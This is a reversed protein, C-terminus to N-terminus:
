IELDYGAGAFSFSSLQSLVSLYLDTSTSNHWQESILSAAASALRLFLVYPLEEKVGFSLLSVDRALVVSHGSRRRRLVPPFMAIM